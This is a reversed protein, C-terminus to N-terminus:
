SMYLNVLQLMALCLFLAGLFYYMKRSLHKVRQAIHQAFRAYILLFGLAGLTTGIIYLWRYPWDAVIWERARFYASVAFYYPIALMNMMSIAFGMLYARGTYAKTRPAHARRAMFFFVIALSLFVVVALRELFSLVEPNKSLYNTFGVAILVQVFVAVASGISYRFATQLGHRISVDAITMNIIGPLLVGVMGM